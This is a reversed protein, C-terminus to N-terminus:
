NFIGDRYQSKNCSATRHKARDYVGTDIILHELDPKTPERREFLTASENSSLKCNDSQSMDKYNNRKKTFKVKHDSTSTDTQTEKSKISSSNSGM